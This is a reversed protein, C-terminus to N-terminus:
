QKSYSMLLNYAQTVGLEGAKSLDILGKNVDKMLIQVVARNYYAEAFNPYLEIAKSYAIYAEPLM